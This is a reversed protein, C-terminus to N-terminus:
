VDLNFYNCHDIVTWTELDVPDGRYTEIEIGLPIYRRFFYWPDPTTSAWGTNTLLKDSSKTINCTPPYLLFDISASGKIALDILSSVPIVHEFVIGKTTYLGKQRYHASIFAKIALDHHERLITEVLKINLAADATAISGFGRYENILQTIKKSAAEKSIEVNARTPVLPPRKSQVFNQFNEQLMQPM